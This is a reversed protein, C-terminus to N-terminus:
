DANCKIQQGEQTHGNEFPEDDSDTSSEVVVRSKWGGPVGSKIGGWQSLLRPAVGAQADESPTPGMHCAAADLGHTGGATSPRLPGSAAAPPQSPPQNSFLGNEGLRVAPKSRSPMLPVHSEFRQLRRANDSCSSAPDSGPMADPPISDSAATRSGVSPSSSSASLVPLPPLPVANKSDKSPKGPLRSSSDLDSSANSTNTETRPPLPPADSPLQNQSSLSSPMLSHGEAPSDKQCAAASASSNGPIPEMTLGAVRMIGDVVKKLAGGQDQQLELGQHSDRTGAQSAVHSPGASSQQVEEQSPEANSDPRVSRSPGPRLRNLPGLAQASGPVLGQLAILNNLMILENHRRLLQALGQMAEAKTHDVIAAEEPTMPLAQLAQRTQQEVQEAEKLLLQVLEDEAKKVELSGKNVPLMHRSPKEAASANSALSAAATMPPFGDPPAHKLEVAQSSPEDATSTSVASAEAAAPGSPAGLLSGNLSPMSAPSVSSTSMDATGRAPPKTADNAKPSLQPATEPEGGVSSPFASRIAALIDSDSTPVHEPPSQQKASAANSIPGPNPSLGKLKAGAMQDGLLAGSKLTADGANELSSLKRLPPPPLGKSAAGPMLEELFGALQLKRAAEEVSAQQKSPGPVKPSVGELMLELAQQLVAPDAAPGNPRVRPAPKKPLGAPKPGLPELGHRRQTPWPESSRANPKDPEGSLSKALRAALDNWKQQADADKESARGASFLDSLASQFSRLGREDAIPEAANGSLHGPGQQLLSNALNLKSALPKVNPVSLPNKQTLLLSSFLKETSTPESPSAGTDQLSEHMQEKNQKAWWTPVTNGQGPKSGLSGDLWSSLEDSSSSSDSMLSAGRSLPKGAPQQELSADRSSSLLRRKSSPRKADSLSSQDASGALDVRKTNKGAMAEPTSQKSLLQIKPKLPASAAQLDSPTNPIDSRGAKQAAQVARQNACHQMGAQMAARGEPTRQLPAKGRFLSSADDLVGMSEAPCKLLKQHADGILRM